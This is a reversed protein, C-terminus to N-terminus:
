LSGLSFGGAKPENGLPAHGSPQADKPKPVKAKPVNGLAVPSSAPAAAFGETLKRAALTGKKAYAHLDCETCAISVTGAENVRVHLQEGCIPCARKGLKAKPASM